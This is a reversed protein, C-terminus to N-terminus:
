HGVVRLKGAEAAAAVEAALAGHAAAAGGDVFTRPDAAGVPVSQLKRYGTGAPLAIDNWWNVMAAVQDRAVGSLLTLDLDALFDSGESTGRNALYLTGDTRDKFVVGQYGSSSNPSAALVEFRDGLVDAMPKTVRGQVLSALRNGTASPDFGDVYVIDALVADLLSQAVRKM